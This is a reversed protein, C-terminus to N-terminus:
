ASLPAVDNSRCGNIEILKENQTCCKWKLNMLSDELM